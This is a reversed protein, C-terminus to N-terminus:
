PLTYPLDFNAEFSYQKLLHQTFVISLHLQLQLAMPVPVETVNM